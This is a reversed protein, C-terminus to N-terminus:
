SLSASSIPFKKRVESTMDSMSIRDTTPNTTQPPWGHKRQFAEPTDVLSEYPQRRPYCCQERLNAVVFDVLGYQKAPGCQCAVTYM